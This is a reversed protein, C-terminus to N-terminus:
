ANFSPNGVQQQKLLNEAAIKASQGDFLVKYVEKTIPMLINHKQALLYVERTNYYGEVVQGIANIAEDLKYGKGLLIGFKRNRSQNDTCTLLLDGLGSMGYFTDHKAHLAIGLKQMENFGRTILAMRANAGFGMGDLIGIGIAIVNKIVGGLQVGILDDTVYISINKNQHIRMQLRRALELNNSALTIATPMDSAIEKAFTPGSLVGFSIDTGLIDFVVDQILRGTGSEIGKTALVLYKDETLFPQIKYLTEDLAFSPVAIIIFSSDEVVKQLDEEILLSDPLSAEPLYTSKRTSKLTLTHAVDHGWLYAPNNNKALAIGLATGFSGAGIVACTMKNM